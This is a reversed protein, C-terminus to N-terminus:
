GGLGVHRGGRVKRGLLDDGAAIFFESQVCCMRVKGETRETFRAECLCAEEGEQDTCREMFTKRRLTSRGTLFRLSMVNELHFM